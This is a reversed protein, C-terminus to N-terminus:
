ATLDRCHAARSRRTSATAVLGRMDLGPSHHLKPTRLRMALAKTLHEPAGPLKTTRGSHVLFGIGESRHIQGLVVVADRYPPHTIDQIDKRDGASPARSQMAPSWKRRRQM